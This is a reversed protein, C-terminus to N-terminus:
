TGPDSHLHCCSSVARAVKTARHLGSSTPATDLVRAVETM